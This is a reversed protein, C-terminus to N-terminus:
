RGLEGSCVFNSVSVHSEVFSNKFNNEQPPVYQHSHRRAQAPSSVVHASVVSRDSAPSSNPTMLSTSTSMSTSSDTVGASPTGVIRLQLRANATTLPLRAGTTPSVNGDVLEDVDGGDVSEEATDTGDDDGSAHGSVSEAAAPDNASLRLVSLDSATAERSQMHGRKRRRKTPSSAARVSVPFSARRADEAISTKSWDRMLPASLGSDGQLCLKGCQACQHVFYRGRVM